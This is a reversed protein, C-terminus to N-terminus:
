AVSSIILGIIDDDTDSSAMNTQRNNASSLISLNGICSQQAVFNRPLTERSQQTDSM